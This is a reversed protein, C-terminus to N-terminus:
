SNTKNKGWPLLFVYAGVIVLALVSLIVILSIRWADSEGREFMDETVEASYEVGEEGLTGDGTFRATFTGDGNDYFRMFTRETVTIENGNADAFIVGEESAKLWGFFYVADAAPYPNVESLLSVPVFARASGYAVLAYEREPAEVVGLVRAATGRPLPERALDPMLCPFYYSALESALYTEGNERWYGARAGLSSISNWYEEEPVATVEHRFLSATYSNDEGCLVVLSYEGEQTLLVGRLAKETRYYGLDGFYENEANLKALDVLVGVSRAPIDVFLGNEDHEAFVREAAKGAPLESLTPIKVAGRMTKVLFDGFCFYIEDDEFGLAFSLPAPTAESLWVYDAADISALAETGNKYVTNEDLCYLNGEFDARLSTAGAPLEFGLTEGAADAKLFQEESYRLVSGDNFSVYLRGYLDSVLATPTSTVAPFYHPTLIDAEPNTRGYYGLQTVFYCAGYVFSLGKVENPVSNTYLLSWGGETRAYVDIANGSAVAINAGDTAICSPSTPRVFVEYACTAMDYVTVRSNEAAVFLNGARVVQTAGNLRGVSDSASAIEYGDFRVGDGDIALRKISAGQACYVDGKYLTLASFGDGELVLEGGEGDAYNIKVRYVGNPYDRLSPENNVTYYFYEGYAQIYGLGAIQHERPDLFKGMEGSDTHTSVDYSIRTNNNIVCYLKGDSYALKPASAPMFDGLSVLDERSITEGLLAYSFTVKGGEGAEATYLYNGEILFAAAPVDHCFVEEGADFDYELLAAGASFFLRGDDTFQLKVIDNTTKKHEHVSYEGAERDYLYLLKGDAVAIYDDNMAAYSPNQLPLYEEYSEPLFLEASERTLDEAEAVADAASLMNLGCLATTMMGAALLVPVIKRIQM